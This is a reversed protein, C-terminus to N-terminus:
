LNLTTALLLFKLIVEFYSFPQIIPSSLTNQKTNIHTYKYDKQVSAMLIITFLVFCVDDINKENFHNPAVSRYRWLCDGYLFWQSCGCNNNEM